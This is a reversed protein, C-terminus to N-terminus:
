FDPLAKKLWTESIRQYEKALVESGAQLSRTRAEVRKHYVGLGLMLMNTLIVVLLGLLGYRGIVAIGALMGVTLLVIGCLALYMQVRALAKFRELSVEDGIDRTETLFRNLQTLSWLMVAAALVYIAGFMFELSM